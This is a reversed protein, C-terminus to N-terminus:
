MPLKLSNLLIGPASIPKLLPNPLPRPLKQDLFRKTTCSTERNSPCADQKKRKRLFMQMEQRKWKMFKCITHVTTYKSLLRSRRRTTPPLAIQRTKREDRGRIPLRGCPSACALPFHRQFSSLHKPTIVLLIRSISAVIAAMFDPAGSGGSSGDVGSRNQM